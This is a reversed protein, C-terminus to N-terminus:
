TEKIIHMNPNIFFFTFIKVFMWHFIYVVISSNTAHKYIFSSIVENGYAKFIAILLSLYAWTGLVHAAGWGPGLRYSNSYIPYLYHESEVDGHPSSFAITLMLSFVTIAGYAQVLAKERVNGKDALHTFFRGHGHRRETGM